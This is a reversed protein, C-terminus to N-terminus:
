ALLKRFVLWWIINIINGGVFHLFTNFESENYSEIRTLNKKSIACEQLLWSVVPIPGFFLLCSFLYYGRKSLKRTKALKM